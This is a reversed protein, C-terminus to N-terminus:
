GDHRGTADRPRLGACADGVVDELLDELSTELRAVPDVQVLHAAGEVDAPQRDTFGDHHQLPVADHRRLVV